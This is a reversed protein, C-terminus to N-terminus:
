SMQGMKPATLLKVVVLNKKAYVLIAFLYGWFLWWKANLSHGSKSMQGMKPVPLM